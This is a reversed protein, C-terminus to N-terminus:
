CESSYEMCTAEGLQNGTAGSFGWADEVGALKGAAAGEWYVPPPLRDM